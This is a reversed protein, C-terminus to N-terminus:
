KKLIYLSHLFVPIYKKPSSKTGWFWILFLLCLPLCIDDNNMRASVGNLKQQCITLALVFLLPWFLYYRGGRVSISHLFLWFLLSSMQRGNHRKNRIHGFGIYMTFHGTMIPQFTSGRYDDAIVSLELRVRWM